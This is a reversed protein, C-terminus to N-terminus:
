QGPLGLIVFEVRRNRARGDATDNTDIPKDPGYGIANLRSPAVGRDVLYKMVSNARDQSLKLNSDYRGRSDTHGEVTINGIHPNEILLKAVQNLLEFSESKIVAKGTEFFVQEKLNIKNDKLEILADPDIEPMPPTEVIVIPCGFRDVVGGEDPCHDDCDPITDGDRDLPCGFEDICGVKGTFPCRDLHDPITDGDSDIFLNRCREPIQSRPTLEPDPCPEVETLFGGYEHGFGLRGGNVWHFSLGLLVRVDAAGISNMGAGLGATLALGRAWSDGQLFRYRAALQAEFPREAENLSKNKPDVTIEGAMDVLIDLDEIFLPISAAGSILISQGMTHRYIDKAPRYRYGLNFAIRAKKWFNYELAATIGFTVAEDSIFRNKTGTPTSLDAILALGVPFENLDLIKGKVLIRLDSVGSTGNLESLPYRAERFDTNQHLAFPMVVSLEVYNFMSFSLFLDLFTQNAIISKEAKTSSQSISMPIHAYNFYFGGTLRWEDEVMTGFTTLYDGPM